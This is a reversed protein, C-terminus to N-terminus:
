FGERVSCSQSLSLVKDFSYHQEVFESASHGGGFISSPVTISKSSDIKSDRIM